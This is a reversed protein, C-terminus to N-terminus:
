PLGGGAPLGDARTALQRYVNVDISQSVFQISGDAMAFNCGGPHRSGFGRMTTVSNGCWPVAPNFPGGGTSACCPGTCSSSTSAAIVKYGNNIPDDAAAM